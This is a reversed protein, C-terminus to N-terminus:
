LDTLVHNDVPDSLGDPNDTNVFNSFTMPAIPFERVDGGPLFEIPVVGLLTSSSWDSIQFLPM